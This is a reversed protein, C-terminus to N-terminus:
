PGSVKTIVHLKHGLYSFSQLAGVGFKSLTGTLHPSRPNHVPKSKPDLGRTERNLASTFYHELQLLTMGGANDFIAMLMPDETGNKPAHM